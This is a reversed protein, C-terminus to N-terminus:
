LREAHRLAEGKFADDVRSFDVLDFSRLTRLTALEDRIRQLIHGPVPAPGLVGVDIDSRSGATATAESGFLFVDYRDLDLVKAVSQRVAARLAHGALVPASPSQLRPM